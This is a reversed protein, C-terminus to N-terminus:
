NPDHAQPADPRLGHKTLIEHLVLCRAFEVEDVSSDEPRQRRLQDRRSLLLDYERVLQELPWRRYPRPERWVIPKPPVATRRLRLVVGLAADLVIEMATVALRRMINM